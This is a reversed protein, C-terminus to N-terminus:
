FVICFPRKSVRVEYRNILFAPIFIKRKPWEADTEFHPDDTGVQALGAPILVFTNEVQARETDGGSEVEVKVSYVSVLFQMAVVIGVLALEINFTMGGM